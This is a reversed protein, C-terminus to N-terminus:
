FTLSPVPQPESSMLLTHLTLHKSRKVKDRRKISTMHPFIVILKFSSCWFVFLLFVHVGSFLQFRALCLFSAQTAVTVCWVDPTSPGFRCTDYFHIPPFRVTAFRSGLTNELPVLTPSHIFLEALRSHETRSSLHRLLSDSYFLGDYFSVRSYELIEICTGHM